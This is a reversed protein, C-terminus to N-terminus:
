TKLEELERELCDSLVTYVYGSGSQWYGRFNITNDSYVTRLEQWEEKDLPPSIQVEIRLPNIRLGTRLAKMTSEKASWILNTLLPQRESDVASLLEQESATFYDRVFLPSRKEIKELDCGMRFGPKAVICFAKGHSHSLSLFAPLPEAECHIEPAGDKARIIAFDSNQLTPHSEKLFSIVAKKATWRGLLWDNQKKPFKFASFTELELPHLWVLSNPLESSTQRLWFVMLPLM